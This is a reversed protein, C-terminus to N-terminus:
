SPVLFGGSNYIIKLVTELWLSVSGRIEELLSVCSNLLEPGFGLLRYGISRLYGDVRLRNTELWQKWRYMTQECPYDASDEDEPTVTEDLVGSIVESAYHKYPVLCDPLERHIRGCEPCKLRRILYVRRERGELLQIRTCRDRYVLPQGCVPCCPTESSEVLFIMKRM